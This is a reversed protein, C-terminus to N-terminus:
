NNNGSASAEEDTPPPSIKIPNKSAPINSGEGELTLPTQETEPQLQDGTTTKKDGIKEELAAIEANIAKLNENNGQSLQKVIQYAALANELDQKEELTHGLNYYANAFDRKLNIAIQFQNQAQDWNKLQYYIGGLQIYLQPNYPDLAIAQNQSAISFQEANEGVGILNRYIQAM